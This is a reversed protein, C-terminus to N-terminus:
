PSPPKTPPPATIPADPATTPPSVFQRAALSQRQRVRAVAARIEEGMADRRRKVARQERGAQQEAQRRRKAQARSRFKGAQAHSFEPWMGPAGAGYGPPPDTLVICDTPCVPLCLRCGSCEAAIVTHMLKAAGVICDVPCADICLKCGICADERIFALQLPRRRAPMPSEPPRGLLRALAEATAAGGPPCGDPAADGAALAEAYARCSPYGCEACQTQPLFRDIREALDASDPSPPNLHM